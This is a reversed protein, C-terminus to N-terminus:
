DLGAARRGLRKLLETVERKEARSLGSMAQRIAEAHGPFVRDMVARGAPTLEAFTVRLDEACARRRLLRKEELRDVAYTVSGSRLLIREGIDGLSLPGRHYLVELVAFDTPSLGQREIDEQSRGAIARFARSLVIWLKLAAARDLEYLDPAHTPESM